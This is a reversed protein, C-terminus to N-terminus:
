ESEHHKPMLVDIPVSARFSLKLTNMTYGIYTIVLVFVIYLVIGACVGFLMPLFAHLSYNCARGKEFLM